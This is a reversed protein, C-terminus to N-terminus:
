KKRFKIACGEDCGTEALLLEDCNLDLIIRTEQWATQCPFTFFLNNDQHIRWQGICSPYNTQTTTFQNNDMFHLTYRNAPAIDVSYDNGVGDNGYRTVAEWTGIIAIEPNDEKTQCAMYSLCVCLLSLILNGKKM